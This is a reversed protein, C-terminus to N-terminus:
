DDRTTFASMGGLYGRPRAATAPPALLAWDGLQKLAESGRKVVNEHRDVLTPVSVLWAPRPKPILSVDQVVVATLRPSKKLLGLAKDSNADKDLVYLVYRKFNDEPESRLADLAAQEQASLAPATAM